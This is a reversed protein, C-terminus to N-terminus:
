ITLLHDIRVHFPHHYPISVVGSGLMIHPHPGRRRWSFEAVFNNGM